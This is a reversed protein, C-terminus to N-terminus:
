RGGSFAHLGGTESGVFVLGDAVVPASVALQLETSRNADNLYHNELVKGDVADLVALYGNTSLAYIRTPTVAPGALLPAGEAPKARWRVAGKAALDLCLAEGNRVPVVARDGLVAIAGLVADPVEVRWLEAGTRRDLALVLGAPDPHAYVFDGRGCGVLVAEGALTVAGTAPYPTAVRWLERRQGRAALEADTEAARLAVVANGNLGSGIYCVGEALVPSSEPDALEHRWLEKGDSVRVAIVEGIPAGPAPKHDTSSEIAGAGVVVVDGDIAPSSELHLRSRVRWRFAGTRADLCILSCDADLHLGQGIVLSSGDASVAPSSFFAKLREPKGDDGPIEYTLWLQKGTAPDLCVVAGSNTPPTLMATAAYLRGHALAPSALFMDFEQDLYRWAPVLREPAAGGAWGSRGQDQRYIVARKGAPPPSADAAPTSAATGAAIATVPEAGPARGRQRQTALYDQALRLWQKDDLPIGARGAGAANRAGAAQGAPALLWWTLVGVLLLGFLPVWPKAKCFAWFRVPNLLVSIVTAMGALAAPAVAAGVNAVAPIVALTDALGGADPLTAFSM